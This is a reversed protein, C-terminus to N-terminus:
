LTLKFTLTFHDHWIYSCGALYLTLVIYFGGCARVASLFNIRTQHEFQRCFQDVPIFWGFLRVLFSVCHSSVSSLSWGAVIKNQSTRPCVCQSQLVGLSHIDACTLSGWITVILGCNEEVIANRAAWICNQSMLGWMAHWVNWLPDKPVQSIWSLKGLSMLVIWLQRYM